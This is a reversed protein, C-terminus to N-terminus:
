GLRRRVDRPRLRTGRRHRQINEVALESNWGNDFHMALTRLGYRHALYATYSSDVGGSVGVICDYTRGRGAAKVRDAMERMHADAQEPSPRVSGLVREAHRCHNCIGDGDFTIDPDSRDMICRSCVDVM